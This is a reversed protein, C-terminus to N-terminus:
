PPTIVASYWEFSLAEGLQADVDRQEHLQQRQGAAITERWELQARLAFLLAAQCRQKPLEFPQRSRLRDQHDELIQVPDIRSRPLEEVENHRLDLMQRDKQDGGETGLELRRPRALWM